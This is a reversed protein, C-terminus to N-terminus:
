SKNGGNKNTSLLSTRAQNAYQYLQYGLKSLALRFPSHVCLNRGYSVLEGSFKAKFDRVGYKEDPRGAGGFDYKSFGNNAGWKLVKWMLVENPVFSSYNRDVGSFWGYIVDKYVLEVSGAVCQDDVWALYFQVMGSSYLQDFAAEFLSYDALPVNARTYSARILEYCLLIEEPKSVTTVKVQDRRLAKRLRRRLRSRFSQLLEAPSKRLDILYNLHDEYQFNHEHLVPQVRELDSVNRLETFLVEKDVAKQYERLLYEFAEEGGPDQTFLVGGYVVARTSLFRMVGKMLTIQVPLLLALPAGKDDTVAWLTPTFGKAAKFVQFMEPTHFVNSEPHQTIFNRWRIEDLNRVLKM